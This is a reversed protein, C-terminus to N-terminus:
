ASRADSVALKCVVAGTVILACGVWLQMGPTVGLYWCSVVTSMFPTLYSCAVVLWINGRRMAHEWLVYALNPGAAMYAIEGIARWSFHTTEGMFRSAIGLVVGTTLMFIAVAGGGRGWRRSLPSYCGWAVAAILALLYAPGNGGVRELFGDLTISQGQTTVLFIGVGAAALGPVLSWRARLSLLPVAFVMALVPWLYNILGVELVQAHSKALGLAQFLCFMYGVFLTGCVVLYRRDLELKARLRGRAALWLCGVTGSCGFFLAASTTAGVEEGLRRGCAVTTSWLFLAVIGMVTARGESSGSSM